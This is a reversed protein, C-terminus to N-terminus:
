KIMITRISDTKQCIAKFLVDNIFIDTNSALTTSQGKESTETKIESSMTKIRNYTSQLDTLWNYVTAVNEDKKYNDLLKILISLSLRQDIVLDILRSNNEVLDALSTSLYLGEIWGGAVIMAAVEARGSEKLYESAGVFGDTIIEMLSDRNNINNEIRAVIDEKVFDLIGLDDALKKTTAMYQIATQTQNYLSAYSLDAGYIGFNLAKQMTTTYNDANSLANALDMNYPVSTSQILYATEVPSPLAYFVQKTKSLDGTFDSEVNLDKNLKSKSNDNACSTAMLCAAVAMILNFNKM